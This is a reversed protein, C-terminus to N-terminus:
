KCINYYFQVKGCTFLKITDPFHKYPCDEGLDQPELEGNSLKIAGDLVHQVYNSDLPMKHHSPLITDFSPLYKLLKEMSFIMANLNRHEGHMFIPGEQVSDGGILLKNKQDLLAISGPSHGPIHIVEFSIGGLDKQLRKTTVLQM